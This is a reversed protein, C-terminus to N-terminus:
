YVVIAVVKAEGSFESAPYKEWEEEEMGHSPDDVIFHIGPLLRTYFDFVHYDRLPAVFWENASERLDNVTMGVQLGNRLKFNPSEVRIRNISGSSFFDEELFIKGGKVKLESIRWSYEGQEALSDRMACGKYRRSGAPPMEEGLTALKLGKNTITKAAGVCGQLNAAALAVLLLISFRFRNKM